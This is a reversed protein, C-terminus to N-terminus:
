VAVAISDNAWPQNPEQLGTEVQTNSGAKPRVAQLVWAWVFKPQVMSVRKKKQNRQNRPPNYFTYFTFHCLRQVQNETRVTCAGLLLFTM